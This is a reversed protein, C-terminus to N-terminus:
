KVRYHREVLIKRCEIKTAIFRHVSEYSDKGPYFLCWASHQYIGPGHDPQFICPGGAHDIAADVPVGRVNVQVGVAATRLGRRAGKLDM